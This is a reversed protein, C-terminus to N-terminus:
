KSLLQSIEDNNSYDIPKKGQSDEINIDIEKKELLLKVIDLDDNEVALHLAAKENILVDNLSYLSKENVDIDARNLLAKIADIKKKEISMFLSTKEIVEIEDGIIAIISRKNVDIKQSSNLYEQSLLLQIVEDHRNNEIAFQLPAMEIITDKDEKLNIEITLNIDLKDNMLLLKIIEVNQNEIAQFLATKHEKKSYNGNHGSIQNIDNIDLKDYNLLLKVIEINEKEIAAFLATKNGEYNYEMTEGGLIQDELFIFDNYVSHINVDLLENSIIFKVIEVNEKEIALFLATKLGNHAKRKIQNNEYKEYKENEYKNLFNVNINEKNLLLKVIEVNENEIALYLPVMEEVVDYTYPINVDIKDNKLLLEVIEVNEKEIAMFLATKEGDYNVESRFTNVDLKDNNLLLKIIEINEKEIAVHLVTEDVFYTGNYFENIVNIDLKDNNLLLKIIEINGKEIAMFLATRSEYNDKYYQNVDVDVSKLLYDVLLFYDYHCLHCFSSENINEKKIFFFNYYKLSQILTENLNEDEIQLYNNLFYNAVDNHHCKISEFFCKEYSKEVKKSHKSIPLIPEILNEELLHILESNRGHIVFLWLSSTLKVERMRLYNFIQISGFFAAYEILTIGNESENEKQILFSNTEYISPKIKTNVSINTRSTHSIFDVLLDERILQCLFSENEGKKRLEYFNEPLEKMLEKTWINFRLRYENPDYKPFWRENMFPKVEPLFYLPYKKKAYKEKTITKVFYEDVTIVEEEILFLLIRKSSVFIDIIELNTYQKIDDKFYRLIEEIKTFFNPNLHYNNAIKLLFNLFLRLEHQNDRLKTEEFLQNLVQFNDENDLFDLLKAQINRNKELYKEIYEIRFM